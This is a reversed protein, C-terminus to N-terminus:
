GAISSPRRWVVDEEFMAVEQLVLLPPFGHAPVLRPM